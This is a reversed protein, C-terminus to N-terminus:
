GVRPGYATHFGHRNGDTQQGSEFDGSETAAEGVEWAESEASGEDSAFYSARGGFACSSPGISYDYTAGTQLGPKGKIRNQRQSELKANRSICASWNHDGGGCGGCLAM